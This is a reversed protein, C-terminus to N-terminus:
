YVPCCCLINVQGVSRNEVRNLGHSSENTVQPKAKTPSRSAPKSTVKPIEEAESADTSDSEYVKETVSFHFQYNNHSRICMQFM